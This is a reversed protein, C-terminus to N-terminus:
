ARPHAASEVISDVPAKLVREWTRELHDKAGPENTLFKVLLDNWTFHQFTSQAICDLHSQHAVPEM